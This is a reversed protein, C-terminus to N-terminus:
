QQLGQGRMSSNSPATMKQYIYKLYRNYSAYERTIATNRDINSLHMLQQRIIHASESQNIRIANMQGALLSATEESVGKIAGSLSNANDEGGIFHKKIDDPMAEIASAFSDGLAKIDAGFQEMDGIVNDFGLFNGNEDIWRKSYRDIIQGIPQELLKQILMKRVINSVIEDVKQGFAVAANEGKAFASIFAEGLEDAISKVDTQLINDLINSMAEEIERGLKDYENGMDKIKDSDSKKKQKEAEMAAKLHERQQKLNDILEKQKRYKDAGLAKDIASSLADYSQQLKDVADRHSQVTKEIEKDRNGAIAKIVNLVAQVAVLAAKIIVLIVSASEVTNMAAAVSIAVGAVMSLSSIATAGVEGIAEKLFDASDIADQVFDFSDKTAQSLQKWNRKIQKASDASDGGAGEFIAKIAEGVQKFPNDQMVIAKAANLKNRIEALDIPNFVGSLTDFKTEIENVLVTIQQSTLEDLNGFLNAWAESQMLESSALESIAKAEAKNLNELMDTDNHERATKRKDEFDDIITQKKKEFDSYQSLLEDYETNGSGKTDRNYQRERNQIARDIKGAEENTTATEKAKKLLAIDNLYDTELKIKKDLYSSYDDLLKQTQTKQQEIASAEAKDLEERKENGLSTYDGELEDRKKQIISLIEIVSEANSLQESLEKNFAELITTKAEEAIQDNLLRLQRNQEKTRNEADISMINDRQKKLYDIYSAGQQLLGRFETDASKSIIEDGSNIWKYFRNYESKYKELKELFPDKNSSGGGSKRGTIKEKQKELGEIEKMIKAYEATNSAKKLKDQKESIAKEIAGVTGAGYENAARIGAEKLTEAAEQEADAADKYGQKIEGELRKLEEQKKAKAKNAVEVTTFIGGDHYYTKTVTDSMGAIEKELEMVRKVKEMSQQLYIAAKSKEIQANIFAEKNKILLNEADRVSDVAVGLEDFSKKNDEIFKRKAELNDGFQQYKFSLNEIAGVSKYTGEILAKSSEEQSKRAENIKGVFRSIVAIIATLAISLGLTLTAMLAQAAVTSIGFTTALKINAAALLEKARRVVVLQFASDKNLTQAVQQIGISIAMVSQVKTMVKQLNENEGSFLSIAGTAASFGGALGSLGTIVGQFKAEDNALIRGQQAIDGQIDTLRGLENSLAKYADSQENIGQEILLAMEEKLERIRTRLSQSAKANEDIKKRRLELKDQEASLKSASDEIEQLLQRRVKIEGHIEAQRDTMYGGGNLEKSYAEGAAIGLERYEQELDAIAKQHGISATELQNFADQIQELAGNVAAGMQRGGKVTSDTLAQVSKIAEDIASLMQDNDIKTTFYLGGGDIEAM